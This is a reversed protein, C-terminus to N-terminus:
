GGWGYDCGWVSAGLARSYVWHENGRAWGGKTAVVEGHSASVICKVRFPM